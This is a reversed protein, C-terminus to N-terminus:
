RWWTSQLTGSTQWTPPHDVNELLYEHSILQCFPFYTSSPCVKNSILDLKLQDLGAAVTPLM